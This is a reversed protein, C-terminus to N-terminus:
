LNLLGRQIIGLQRVPLHLLNDVITDDAVTKIYWTSPDNPDHIVAIVNIQYGAVDVYFHSERAVIQRAAEQKTCHGWPGWVHTISGLYLGLLGASRSVETIQKYLM